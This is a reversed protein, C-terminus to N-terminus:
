VGFSHLLNLDVSWVLPFCVKWNECPKDFLLNEKNKQNKYETYLQFLHDNSVDPDVRIKVVKEIQGIQL